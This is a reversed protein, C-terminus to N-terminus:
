RFTVSPKILNSAQGSLPGAENVLWFTLLKFGLPVKSPWM